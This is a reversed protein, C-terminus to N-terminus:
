VFNPALEAIIMFEHLHPTLAVMSLVLFEIGLIWDFDSLPVITVRCHEEWAEMKLNVMASGFNITKITQNSDQLALKLITAEQDVVFTYAINSDIM